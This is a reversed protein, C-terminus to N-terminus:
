GQYHRSYVHGSLDNDGESYRCRLDRCLSLMEDVAPSTLGESAILNVCESGRYIEHAMSAEYLELFRRYFDEAESM